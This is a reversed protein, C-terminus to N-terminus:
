KKTEIETTEKGFPRRALSSIVTKLVFFVEGKQEDELVTGDELPQNLESIVFETLHPESEDTLHRTLESQLESERVQNVREIWAETERHAAELSAETVVATENPRGIKTAKFVMYALFMSLERIKSPSEHTLDFVFECITPQEHFFADFERMMREDSYHGVESCAQEVSDSTIM